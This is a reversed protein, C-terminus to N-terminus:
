HLLDGRAFSSLLCHRYKKRSIFNKQATGNPPLLWHWGAASSDVRWTDVELRHNAGRKM